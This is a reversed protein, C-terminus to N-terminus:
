KMLALAYNAFEFHLTDFDSEKPVVSILFYEEDEKIERPIGVVSPM